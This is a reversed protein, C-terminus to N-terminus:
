QLRLPLIGHSCYLGSEWTRWAFRADAVRAPADRRTQRVSALAARIANTVDGTGRPGEEFSEPLPPGGPKGAREELLRLVRDARSQYLQVERRELGRVVNPVLFVAGVAVFALVGLYAGAKWIRDAPGGRIRYSAALLGVAAGGAFGGLHGANDIGSAFQGYVVIIVGWILMRRALFRGQLGGRKWGFVGVAAILGCLAGSAGAGSNQALHSALSGALGALLYICVTRHVGLTGAALPTLFLLAVSNFLLHVLDLHLFMATAFRWYQGCERVRLWDSAGFTVISVGSPALGERRDDKAPDLVMTLVFMALIVGLMWFGFRTTARADDKESLARGAAQSTGCYPCAKTSPSLLARCKPCTLFKAV